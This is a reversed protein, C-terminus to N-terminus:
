GPPITLLPEFIWGEVTQGGQNITVHVWAQGNVQTREFITLPTGPQLTVLIGSDTSPLVRVNVATEGTQAEIIPEVRTVGPGTSLPRLTAAQPTPTATAEPTNSPPLTMAPWVTVAGRTLAPGSTSTVAPQLAESIPAADGPQATEGAPAAVSPLAAEVPQATEIPQATEVPQVPQDTPAVGGLLAAQGLSETATVIQVPVEPLPPCPFLAQAQVSQPQQRSQIFAMLLMGFVVLLTIEALKPLKM